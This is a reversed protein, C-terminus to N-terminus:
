ISLNQNQSTAMAVLTPIETFACCFTMLRKSGDGDLEGDCFTAVVNLRVSVGDVLKAGDDEGVSHEYLIDVFTFLQLHWKGIREM